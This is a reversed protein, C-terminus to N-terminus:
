REAFRLLTLYSEDLSTKSLLHQPPALACLQNM